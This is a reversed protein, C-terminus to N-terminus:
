IIGRRRPFVLRKRVHFYKDAQPRDRICMEKVLAVGEQAKDYTPNSKIGSIEVVEKGADALLEKIEDYIGNKKVSGGGYARDRICM